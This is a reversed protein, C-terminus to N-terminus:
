FCCVCLCSLVFCRGCKFLDCHVVCLMFLLCVVVLIGPCFLSVFVVLVRLLAFWCVGVFGLFSVVYM